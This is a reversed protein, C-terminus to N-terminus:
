HSVYYDSSVHIELGQAAHEHHHVNTDSRKPAEVTTTHQQFASARYLQEESSGFQSKSPKSKLEVDFSAGHDRIEM